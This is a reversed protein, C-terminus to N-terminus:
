ASQLWYGRTAIKSACTHSGEIRTSLDPNQELDWQALAESYGGEGPHLLRTTPADVIDAGDAGAVNPTDDGDHHRGEPIAVLLSGDANRTIEM